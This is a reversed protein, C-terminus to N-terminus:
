EGIMNSDEGYLSLDAKFISKGSYERSSSRPITVVSVHDAPLQMVVTLHEELLARRKEGLLEVQLYSAEGYIDLAKAYIDGEESAPLQKNAYALLAPDNDKLKDVEARDPMETSDARQQKEMLYDQKLRYMCVEKLAQTYNIDQQVELMLDPKVKIVDVLQGWREYQEATFEEQLSSFEIEKLQEANLGMSSALADLPALSVKVLVNIFTNLLIKTFSFQPSAMNGEVPLDMKIHEDRDKLIYLAMRLPVKMAPRVDKRQPDITCKFIDLGNASKLENNKAENHSSFTMTGDSIPYAFYETSYPSFDKLGIGNLDVKLSFNALDNFNGRWQLQLKGTSGLGGRIAVKNVKEMDFDVAELAINRLKYDFHEKLTNDAYELNIGRLDLKAITVHPLESQPEEEASATDPAASSEKILYSINTASDHEVVYKASLGRLMIKNLSFENDALSLKNMDVLLSDMSVVRHQRDDHLDFHSVSVTGGLVSNMVHETDGSIHIHADLMGALSGVRLSQQMYPLLGAISFREMDLQVRFTSKEIDYLLKAGLTGGDAFMLDFGVDTAAGAFYVGPIILNLNELDWKSGVQLDNYLLSGRRLQIDYIGIAWPTSLTDVPAPVTDTSSFKAIIDDFNFTSGNQSIRVLPECLHIKKVTVKHRLFDFLSVKVALTDFKVFSGQGSQEKMDFGLITLSGSLINVRLKQMTVERGVLDKSNKEVYRHAIPSVLLAVVILLALLAGVVILTVKIGKKM